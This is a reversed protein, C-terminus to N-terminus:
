NVRNFSCLTRITKSEGNGDLHSNTGVVFLGFQDFRIELKNATRVPNEEIKTVEIQRATKVLGVVSSDLATIISTSSMYAQPHNLMIVLYSLKTSTPDNTTLLMKLSCKESSGTVSGHDIDYNKLVNQLDAYLDAGTTKASAGAGFIFVLVSLWHTIKQVKM